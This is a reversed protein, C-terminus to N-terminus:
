GYLDMHFRSVGCISCAVSWGREQEAYEERNEPTDKVTSYDALILVGGNEDCKHKDQNPTTFIESTM